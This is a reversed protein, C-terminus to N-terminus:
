EKGYFWNERDNKYGIPESVRRKVETALRKVETAETAESKPRKAKRDSRKETAETAESVGRFWGNRFVAM